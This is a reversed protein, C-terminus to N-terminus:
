NNNKYEAYKVTKGKKLDIFYEEYRDALLRWGLMNGSRCDYGTFFLKGNVVSMSSEMYNPSGYYYASKKKYRVNLKKIKKTKTDFRTISKKNKVNNRCYIYRSDATGLWGCKYDKKKIKGSKSLQYCIVKPTKASVNERQTFIKGSVLLANSMECIEKQVKIKGTKISIQFIYGDQESSTGPMYCITGYIYNGYIGLIGIQPDSAATLSKYISSKKMDALKKINTTNTGYYIVSGDRLVLKNGFIDGDFYDSDTVQDESVVTGDLKLEKLMNEEQLYLKASSENIGLLSISKESHYLEVSQGGKISVSYLVQDKCYFLCDNAIWIADYLSEDLIKTKTKSKLDYAYVKSSNGSLSYYLKNKYEVVDTGNNYVEHNKEAESEHKFIM